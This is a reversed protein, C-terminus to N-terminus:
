TLARDRTLRDAMLRMVELAFFGNIKVLRAFEDADVLAITGGEIVRASFLRPQDMLLAVEGFVSGAEAVEIVDDGRYLEVKGDILGYMYDAPDGSEFLVDGAVIERKTEATRFLNIEAM